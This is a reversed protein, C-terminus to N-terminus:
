NDGDPLARWLGANTNQSRSSERARIWPAERPPGSVGENANTATAEPLVSKYIQLEEIKLKRDGTVSFAIHHALLHSVASVYLISFMDTNPLDWTYVLVADEVNTLITKQQGDLSTEIDFPLADDPPSNPHQIKRAAVCDDPYSYRFRWVGALPDTATESITDSHLELTRRKRAFNWDYAELVQLRSHDYWIGSQEAETSKETFSEIVSKAGIHSLAMNAIGVPSVFSHAM